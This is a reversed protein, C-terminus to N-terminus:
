TPRYASFAFLLLNTGKERFLIVFGLCSKSCLCSHCFFIDWSFLIFLTFSLFSLRATSLTQRNEDALRELTTNYECLQKTEQCPKSVVRPTSISLESGTYLIHQSLYHSSFHHQKVEWWSWFCSWMGFAPHTLDVGSRWLNESYLSLPSEKVCCINWHM